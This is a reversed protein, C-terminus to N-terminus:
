GKKAKVEDGWVTWGERPKRAFLELYPGPSMSEVIDYFEQPKESHKGRKAVFSTLANHRLPPLSGKVAFLVHETNNRYYRGMGMQPKVWTLITKQIFGWKRVLELGEEMFANTVWLYLHANNDAYREVNLRKIREFDMTKYHDDALGWITGHGAHRKRSLTYDWPPDAVITHFRGM